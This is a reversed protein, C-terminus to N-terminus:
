TSSAAAAVEPHAGRRARSRRRLEPIVGVLTALGAIWLVPLALTAAVVVTWRRDTRAGWIVILAAVGLRLWLPIPISGAEDVVQPSDLLFDIWAVWLEPVFVYSVACIVAAPVVAIALERWERRAVFWLLGVGMTFKTLLVFTWTWPYRFGLAVAVALLLHINGYLLDLAVAPFAFVVAIWLGSGGIFIGTAVLLATWFWIFTTWPVADFTDAVLAAPPSYPFSGFGSLPVAYVDPRDVNWYAWADMGFIGERPAIVLFTYALFLLGALILGHGIARAFGARGSAHSGTPRTLVGRIRDGLSAHAPSDVHSMGAMPVSYACADRQGLRGITGIV